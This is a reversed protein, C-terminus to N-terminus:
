SLAYGDPMEGTGKAVIRYVHNNVFPHGTQVRV